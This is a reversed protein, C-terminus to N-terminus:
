IFVYAFFGVALFVALPISKQRTVCSYICAPIVSFFLIFLLGYIGFTFGLAATLKIDGGGVGGKTLAIILLIFAPCILGAIRESLTVLLIGQIDRGISEGVAVFFVGTMMVTIWTWDPIIRKRWDTVAACIIGVILMTYVLM